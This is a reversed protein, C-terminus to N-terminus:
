AFACTWPDQEPLPASNPINASERMEVIKRQGNVEKVVIFSADTFWLDRKLATHLGGEWGILYGFGGKDGNMNPIATTSIFGHKFPEFNRGLSVNFNHYLELWGDYNFRTDNFSAIVDKSFANAYVEDWAGNAPFPFFGNVQCELWSSLQISANVNPSDALSCPDGDRPVLGLM